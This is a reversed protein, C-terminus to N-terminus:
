LSNLDTRIKDYNFHLQLAEDKLQKARKTAADTADKKKQLETKMLEYQTRLQHSSDKARTIMEDASDSAEMVSNSM